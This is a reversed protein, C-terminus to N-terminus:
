LDPQLAHAYFDCRLLRKDFVVVVKAATKYVYTSVVHDATLM